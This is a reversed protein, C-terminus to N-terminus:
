YKNSIAMLAKDNMLVLPNFGVNARALAQSLHHKNSRIRLILVRLGKVGGFLTVMRRFYEDSEARVFIEYPHQLGHSGQDPWTSPWWFIWKDKNERLEGCLHLVFDAQLLATFTSFRNNCREKLYDAQVSFRKSGRKENIQDLSQLHVSFAGYNIRTVNSPQEESPEIYFPSDLLKAVFDFKEHKLAISVAYIFMENILFRINDTEFEWIAADMKRITLRYLLEFLHRLVRVSENSEVYRIIQSVVEIAANRPALLARISEDIKDVFVKYDNDHPVQYQAIDHAFEEVFEEARMMANGQNNEIAACVESVRDLSPTAIGSDGGHVFSPPSGISPKQLLPKDFVWRLIREFMEPQKNADTYDIYVRSQMYTPLCSNGNDDKDIVLVAFKEQKSKGVLNPAIIESEAGVGGQRDDARQAYNKDSVVLVKDAVSVMQEMFKHLDHGERLDWFDAIVDVGKNRLKEGLVIVRDKHEPSGHAYSLFLKPSTKSTM